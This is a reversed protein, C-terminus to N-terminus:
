NEHWGRGGGEGVSGTAGERTEGNRCEGERTEEGHLRRNFHGSYLSIWSLPQGRSTGLGARLM